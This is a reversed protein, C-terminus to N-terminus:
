FHFLSNILVTAASGLKLIKTQKIHKQQIIGQSLYEEQNREKQYM